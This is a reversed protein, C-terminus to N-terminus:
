VLGRGGSLGRGLCGAGGGRLRQEAGRAHRKRRERGVRSMGPPHLRRETAIKSRVCARVCARRESGATAAEAGAQRSGAGPRGSRCAASVLPPREAAAGHVEQRTVGVAVPQEVGAEVLVM